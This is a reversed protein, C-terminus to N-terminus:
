AVKDAGEAWRHAHALVAAWRSTNRRQERLDATLWDPLSWDRALQEMFDAEGAPSRQWGLRAPLEGLEHLLGSLYAREPCVGELGEALRRTYQAIRRAHRWAPVLSVAARVEGSAGGCFTESPFTDLQFTGFWAAADLSAICDEIREPRGPSSGYEEGILRLVGLTAGPDGLIVEAVAGLDVLREDLLVELQLRTTLLVPVAPWPDPDPNPFAVLKGFANQPMRGLSGGSGAIWPNAM